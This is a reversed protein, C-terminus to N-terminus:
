DIQELAEQTRSGHERTEDRMQELDPLRGERLAEGAGSEGRDDVVPAAGADPRAVQLAAPAVARWQRGVILLVITLVVLLIVVGFGGGQRRM